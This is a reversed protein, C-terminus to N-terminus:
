QAVFFGSSKKGHTVLSIGSFHLRGRLIVEQLKPGDPWQCFFSISRSESSDRGIMPAESFVIIFVDVYSLKNIWNYNILHKKYILSQALYSSSRGLLPFGQGAEFIKYDFSPL